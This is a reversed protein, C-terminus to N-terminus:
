TMPLDKPVVVTFRNEAAPAGTPRSATCTPASVLSMVREIRAAMGVEFTLTLATLPQM